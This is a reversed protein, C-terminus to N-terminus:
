KSRTGWSGVGSSDARHSPWKPYESAIMSLNRCSSSAHAASRKPGPGTSPPSRTPGARPSIRSNSSDGHGGEQGHEQRGGGPKGVAVQGAPGPFGELAPQRLPLAALPGPRQEQLRCVVELLQAAAAGAGRQQLAAQAVGVEQGAVQ